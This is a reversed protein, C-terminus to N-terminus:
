QNQEVLFKVEREPMASHLLVLEEPWYYDTVLPTTLWKVGVPKYPTADSTRHWTKLDTVFGWNKPDNYYYPYKGGLVV